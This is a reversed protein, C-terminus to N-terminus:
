MPENILISQICDKALVLSRTTKSSLLLAVDCLFFLPAEHLSETVICGYRPLLELRPLTQTTATQQDLSCVRISRAAPRCPCKKGHLFSFTNSGRRTDTHLESISSPSSSIEYFLICRNASLGRQYQKEGKSWSGPLNRQGVVNQDFMKPKTIM